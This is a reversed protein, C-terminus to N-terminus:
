KLLRMPRMRVQTPTKLVSIYMGSNLDRAEFAVQYRGPEISSQLLTAVRRGLIDLVFLETYGREIVEFTIVTMANFPNPHNPELALEGIADFLREGGEQCIGLRFEGDIRTLAVGPRDWAFSEIVLPTSTANGLSAVFELRHLLEDTSDFIGSLEIVREGGIVRGEPTEGVPVLLTGNFRIRADYSTVGAEVLEHQATMRFDVTVHDGPNAEVVPLAVTAAPELPDPSRQWSYPLSITDCGFDSWIRVRYLTDSNSRVIRDTEGPIAVRQGEIERYWQYHAAPTSILTDGTRSIQPPEPIPHVTVVLPLATGSCGEETWVSLAYSGSRHVTIGRTTDGTSWAYGAYSQESRLRVSDGDCFELPGDAVIQPSPLPHFRVDYPEATGSCGEATTVTVNYSGAGRVTLTTGSSGDSWRYETYSERLGLVVSDGECVPEATLAVIEPEPPPHVQVAVAPSIGICGAASVVTVSYSGASDVTIERTSDGTSWAYAVFGSPASLTVSDGECFAPPGDAGIVPEPIPHVIVTVTTDGRCSASGFVQDIHVTYSGPSSWSATIGSTGQGSILAGGSVDWDYTAGPMDPVAFLATDGACLAAPGSIRPAPKESVIVEVTDSVGPCGDVSTVEVWYTGATGTTITRTGAGNSWRYSAFGAGADLRVSDGLCFVPSGQVDIRPRPEPWVTVLVSDRQMCGAADVVTLTYRMSVPPAAFPAAIDTTSLGTSPAWRYTYPAKGSNIQLLLQVSDGPCIAQSPGADIDLRNIEMHVTDRAVCGRASTATVIYTTSQSPAASPNAIFPYDLDDRPEWEYTVPHDNTSASDGIMRSQGECLSVDPGADIDIWLVEVTVSDTAECGNSSRVTLYYTTTSDPTVTNQPAGPNPVASAPSWRYTYPPVGGGAEGGITVTGGACLLTDRGADVAVQSVFVTVTDESVCGNLSTVTMTYTTTRAPAAQPSIAAPNSLGNMPSWVVQYPPHAGNMTTELQTIGGPCIVKDPGADVVPPEELVVSVTDSYECGTVSDRVTFIYEGAIAPNMQLIRTRNGGTWNMHFFGSGGNILAELYLDEGQCLLTDSLGEIEFPAVELIRVSDRILGTKCIDEIYITVYEGDDDISDQIAEIPIRVSGQGSLFTVKNAIANYDTGNDADGRIHFFVTVSDDLNGLRQIEIIGPECGSEVADRLGVVSYQNGADFSGSKLFVGSDLLNDSVDAIALKLHYRECPVVVASAELVTTFGDYQVTQGGYNNVYYQTNEIHNVNNIAVPTTTGPILAINKKGAIGPGSIFFAFVDNYVSGVFETYEESAFVYEFRVTDQFPIFDFELVAADMTFYNVLASLDPDGASLAPYTIDDSNNPGIAYRVWGSTLLVGEDIGINSRTGNFYSVARPFGEYVINEVQAGGGIFYTRVLSDISIGEQVALQARAPMAALVVASAAVLLQLIRRNGPHRM